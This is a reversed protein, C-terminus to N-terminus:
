AQFMRWRERNTARWHVTKVKVWDRCDGSRHPAALRKSVIGELQLREAAELLKVGDDFCEVLRLCLIEARTLLRELRRRRELLPLPRLDRGDCHLLDFAYVV